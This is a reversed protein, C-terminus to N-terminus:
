NNLAGQNVWRTIKNIECPSLKPLNKPMASFGAAWNICGVIKGNLAGPQTGAHTTFNYGGSITAADHCGVTNCKATLIPSIDGAYTVTTTDCVVSGTAPYLKDYKDNYCGATAIAIGAVVILKKMKIIRNLM